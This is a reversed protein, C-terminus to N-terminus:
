MSSVNIQAETPNFLEIYSSGNEYGFQSILLHDAYYVYSKLATLPISSFYMTYSNVNPPPLVQVTISTSILIGNGGGYVHYQGPPLYFMAQHGQYATWSYNPQEVIALQVPAGGTLEPNGPGASRATIQLLATKARVNPDQVIGMARTGIYRTQHLACVLVTISKTGMDDQRSDAEMESNGLSDMLKSRTVYTFLNYQIHNITVTEVPFNVPDYPLYLEADNAGYVYM